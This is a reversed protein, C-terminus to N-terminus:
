LWRQRKFVLYLGVACAVMLALAFPYGLGWGLEPMHRFNMGYISAIV